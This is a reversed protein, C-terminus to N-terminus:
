QHSGEGLGIPRDRLKNALAIGLEFCAGKSGRWGPLLLLVDSVEILAQDIHLYEAHAMRLGRLLAEPNIVDTIGVRRLANELRAFDRRANPNQTIPGSLYVRM